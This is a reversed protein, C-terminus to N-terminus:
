GWFACDPDEVITQLCEDFTGQYEDGDLNHWKLDRKMWALRWIGKKGKLPSIRAIPTDEIGGRFAQGGTRWETVYYRGMNKTVRITIGMHEPVRKKEILFHQAKQALLDMSNEPVGTFPNNEPKM